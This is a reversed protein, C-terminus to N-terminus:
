RTTEKPGDWPLGLRRARVFAGMDRIDIPVAGLDIALTRKTDVVDYHWRGDGKDQFWERRSGLRAAFAHLEDRTDATLHSWRATIRGVRVPRRMNDYVTM